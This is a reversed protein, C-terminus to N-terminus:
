FWSFELGLQSLGVVPWPSALAADGFPLLTYRVRRPFYAIGLGLEFAWRTGLRYRGGLMALAGARLLATNRTSTASAGTTLVRRRLLELTPGTEFSFAWSGRETGVGLSLAGQTRQLAFSGVPSQLEAPWHAALSLRLMLPAPLSLRLSSWVGATVKASDEFSALAAALSTSVRAARRTGDRMQLPLRPLPESAGVVDALPQSAIELGEDLARVASSIVSAVAELAALNGRSEGPMERSIARSRAADVLYLKWPSAARVDLLVVLLVKAERQMDAMASQESVARLELERQRESGDRSLEAALLQTLDTQQAAQLSGLFGILVRTRRNAATEAALEPPSDRVVPQAAALAPSGSVALAAFGACLVGWGARVSFSQRPGFRASSM